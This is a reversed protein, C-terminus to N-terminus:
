RSAILRSFIELGGAIGKLVVVLVLTAVYAIKAVVKLVEMTGHITGEVYRM